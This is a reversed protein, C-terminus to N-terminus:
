SSLITTWESKYVHAIQDYGLYDLMELTKKCIQKGERDAGEMILLIGRFFREIIRYLGSNLDTNLNKLKDLLEHAIPFEKEKLCLEAFNILLIQLIEKGRDYSHYKQLLKYVNKIFIMRQDHTFYDLTNTFVLLEFLTWSERNLLFQVVIDMQEPPITTYDIKNSRLFHNVIQIRGEVLALFLEKKDSAAQNVIEKKLAILANLDNENSAKALLSWFSTTEPITYQNYIFLFEDATVALAELVQELLELSLDHHGKEFEIAYSKSILSSYLEKQSIGKALRIKRVILGYEKM